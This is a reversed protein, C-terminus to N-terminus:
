SFLSHLPKTMQWLWAAPLPCLQPPRLGPEQSASASESEGSIGQWGTFHENIKVDIIPGLPARLSVSSVQIRPQFFGLALSPVQSGIGFPHETSEFEGGM